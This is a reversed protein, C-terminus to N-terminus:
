VLFYLLFSIPFSIGLLLPFSMDSSNIEQRPIREKGGRKKRRAM